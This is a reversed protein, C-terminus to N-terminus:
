HWATSIDKVVEKTYPRADEVLQIAEEDKCTTAFGESVGELDIKPYLSKTIGLALAGARAMKEQLVSRSRDAIHLLSESPCAAPPQDGFFLEVINQSAMTLCELAM